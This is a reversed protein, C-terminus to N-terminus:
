LLSTLFSGAQQTATVDDPVPLIEATVPGEYGIKALTQLVSLFNIHGQGPAQRNSDAVHVYGLRDGAEQLAGTISAEEINMHFTDLLLKASSEGIEDLLALGDGSSNIFNTEYRNIPEVLLMVDHAAAFRACERIAEVAAARQQDQEAATGSLRGRIGGIIAAAKFNAALQIISKLRKVTAERVEPRSDCLCLSDHICSQGTAIAALSLAHQSLMAALTEAQIDEVSRLSLEVLSFGSEAAMRLGEALQGAFLLPGFRSPRPSIAIGFRFSLPTLAQVQSGREAQVPPYGADLKVLRPVHRGEEFRTNLWENVIGPARQPTVVGVGMVLINADNHARSQHATFVDHCLAARVGPIRNAAISMGLGTGCVLVGRDYEGAAVAQGVLQAFDPYDVSVEPTDPGADTVAVGLSALHDVVVQKLPFGVHDSAVIIKM